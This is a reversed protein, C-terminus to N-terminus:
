YLQSAPPLPPLLAMAATRSHLVNMLNCDLSDAALLYVDPSPKSEAVSDGGVVCFFHPIDVM